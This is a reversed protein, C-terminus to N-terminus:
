SIWALATDWSNPIVVAKHWDCVMRRMEVSSVVRELVKYCGLKRSNDLKKFEKVIMKITIFPQLLTTLYKAKGM